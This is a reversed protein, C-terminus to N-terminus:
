ILEVREQIVPATGRATGVAATRLDLHDARDGRDPGEVREGHEGPMGINNPGGDAHAAAEIEVPEHPDFDGGDEIEGRREVEERDEPLPQLETKEPLAEDEQTVALAAVLVGLLVPADGPDE